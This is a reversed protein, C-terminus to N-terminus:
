CLIKNLKLTKKKFRNSKIGENKYLDMIGMCYKSIRFPRIMKERMKLYFLSNRNLKGQKLECIVLDCLEMKKSGSTYNINMDFTLRDTKQKNVLTIRIFNNELSSMLSEHKPYIESLFQRELTTLSTSWSKSPTRTKITQGKNKKKVELFALQNNKYKRIRIKMRNAKGRHHDKYFSFDPQDFYLSEYESYKCNNVELIKYDKLLDPFVELFQSESIAFKTDVRKMLNVSDMESLSIPEFAKTIDEINNLQM